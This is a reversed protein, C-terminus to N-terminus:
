ISRQTPSCGIRSGHMAKPQGNSKTSCPTRATLPKLPQRRHREPHAVPRPGRQFHDTVTPLGLWGHMSEEWISATPPPFDPDAFCGVPIGCYEPARDTESFVNSGCNPCFYCRVQSKLWSAGSHVVSSSQRQCAKCHCLYVRAPEGTAIVRLQGCHCTATREM